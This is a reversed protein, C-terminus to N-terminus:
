AWSGAGSAGVARRQSWVRSFTEVVVPDFQTGACRRLEALAEQPDSASRYTRTTIMADFADCVAVIRSGLPIDQAALGDPYGEGDWREHSARVLAGVRGLAPAANLIRQGIITHRRIFEWEESDLPGPKHLIADPIAVKGIDHLQAAQGVEETEEPALGLREAVGRALDAVDATHSGLSPDRETLARLLVDASQRGASARSSKKAAYLRNDALQLAASGDAAERPLTVAGFSCGVRFGDGHESLAQAAAEVTHLAVERGPEILACFEDGGMRYALGRGTLTRALNHGLRALLSDGAPHGFTDNYFKFGDLDFLALVLPQADSAVPLRREIDLMLARRNRLGTLADTLAERRSARLMALNDAFTMTLRAFVALLSAAALGVALANVSGLSAAVLVALGMGAFLLPLAIERWGTRRGTAEHFAPPVWAAAAYLVTALTWGFDFPSPTVYTENAVGILYLSDAIWYALTGAGLLAWTPTLRWGRLAIAAVVLGILVLDTVPYSLNTAVEGPTGGIGLVAELVVAASLAGVAFAATVGDAALTRSVHPVRARILLVFGAFTLPVFALYGIDAPSPVPIEDLDALLVAWYLDGLTWVLIGAAILLWAARERGTRRVASLGVLAMAGLQVVNSAYKSLVHESGPHSPIWSMVAYAACWLLLAALAWRVGRHPFVDKVGWSMPRDSSKKFGRPRM